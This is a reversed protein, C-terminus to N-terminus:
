GQHLGVRGGLLAARHLACSGVLFGYLDSAEPIEPSRGPAGLAAHMDITRASDTTTAM